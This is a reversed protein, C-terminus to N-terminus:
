KCGQFQIQIDVKTKPTPILADCHACIKHDNGEKFTVNLITVAGGSKLKWLYEKSLYEIDRCGLPSYFVHYYTSSDSVWNNEGLHYYAPDLIQFVARECLFDLVKVRICNKDAELVESQCNQLTLSLM